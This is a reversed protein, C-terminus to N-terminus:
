FRPAGTPAKSSSAGPRPVIKRRAGADPPQQEWSRVMAACEGRPDVRGQAVCTQYCRLAQGGQGSVQYAAGLILWAEGDSKDLAVAREGAAIARQLRWTDLAILAERKAGAVDTAFGADDPVEEPLAEEAPDLVPLQPLPPTEANTAVESASPPTPSANVRRRARVVVVGLVLMVGLVTLIALTPRSRPARLVPAEDPTVDGRPTVEDRGAAEGRAPAEDHAAVEAPGPDGTSEDNADLQGKPEVDPLDYKQPDYTPEEDRLPPPAPLPTIRPKVEGPPPTSPM